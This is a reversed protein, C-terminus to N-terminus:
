PFSYRASMKARCCFTGTMWASTNLSSIVERNQITADTKSCWAKTNHNLFWSHSIFVVRHVPKKKKFANGHSTAEMWWLHKRTAYRIYSFFGPSEQPLNTHNRDRPTAAPNKPAYAPLHHARLGAPFCWWSEQLHQHTAPCSEVGATGCPLHNLWRSTTVGRSQYVDNSLANNTTFLSIPGSWNMAWSEYPLLLPHSLLKSDAEKKKWRWSRRCVQLMSILHPLPSLVSHVTQFIDAAAEEWMLLWLPSQVVDKHQYGRKIEAQWALTLPLLAPGFPTFFIQKKRCLVHFLFFYHSALRQPFIHFFISSTCQM